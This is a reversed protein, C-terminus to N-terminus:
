KFQQELRSGVNANLTLQGCVVLANHRHFEGSTYAHLTAIIKTRAEEIIGARKLNPYDACFCLLSHYVM